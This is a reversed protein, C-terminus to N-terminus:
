KNGYGRELMTNKLNDYRNCAREEDMRQTDFASACFNYRPDFCTATNCNTGEDSQVFYGSGYVDFNTQSNIATPVHTNLDWVDYAYIPPAIVPVIKTRPHGAKWFSRPDRYEPNGPENGNFELELNTKPNCGYNGPIVGQELAANTSYYRNDFFLPTGDNCFRAYGKPYMISEGPKLPHKQYKHTVKSSSFSPYDSCASTDCTGCSIPKYLNSTLEIPQYSEKFGVMTRPGCTDVIKRSSFSPYSNCASSAQMVETGPTGCYSEPSATKKNRHQQYVYIMGALIAFFAIIIVTTDIKFLLLAVIVIILLRTIANLNEELTYATSPLIMYPNCFLEMFNKAWFEKTCTSM